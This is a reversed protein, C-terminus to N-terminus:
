DNNEHGITIYSICCYANDDDWCQTKNKSIAGSAFSRLTEDFNTIGYRVSEQNNSTKEISITKLTENTSINEGHIFRTLAAQAIRTAVLYADVRENADGILKEKTGLSILIDNKNIKLIEIANPTLHKMAISKIAEQEGIRTTKPSAETIVIINKLKITSILYDTDNEKWYGEPTSEKIELSFHQNKFNPQQSYFQHLIKRTKSNLELDIDVQSKIEETPLSAKIIIIEEGAKNTMTTIGQKEKFLTKMLQFNDVEALLCVPLLLLTAFLLNKMVFGLKSFRHWSSVPLM